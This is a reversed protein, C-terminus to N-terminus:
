TAPQEGGKLGIHILLSVFADQYLASVALLQHMVLMKQRTTELDNVFVPM